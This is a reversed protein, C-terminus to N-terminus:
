KNNTFATFTKSDYKTIGGGDTGILLYGENDSYITGIANSTLGDKTTYNKFKNGDYKWLGNDITGIWLNGQKYNTITWVRAM